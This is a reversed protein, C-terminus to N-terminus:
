ERSGAGTRRVSTSPIAVKSSPLGVVARGPVISSGLAGAHPDARAEPLEVIWAETGSPGSGNGVITMGACSIETASILTSGTLDFGQSTLIGSLERWRYILPNPCPQRFCISHLHKASVQPLAM